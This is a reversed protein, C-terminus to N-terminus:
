LDFGCYSLSFSKNCLPFDSIGNNRAALALGTWNHFSPDTIKYRIINGEKGTIAAHFTEGRWGEVLSITLCGAARKGPPVINGGDGPLNDLVELIFKISQRIEIYRIYSRSFVDGGPLTIKHIPFNRYIRYPHDSRTDVAVGSARAAPGVMGLARADELTLLGTQELRALVSSSSFFAESIDQIDIDLRRLMVGLGACYDSLMDYNVGGPRILGRGFRSGCLSLFSNLVKTRLAGYISKGQIYAIDGAIASLDGIHIAIRELELAIGRVAQSRRTIVCGCLSEIVAAYASAYSIVSDGAISEALFPASESDMGAMMEEVGRHHYGLM